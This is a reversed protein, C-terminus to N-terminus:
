IFVPTHTHTHTHIHTHTHTHLACQTHTHTNPITTTCNIYESFHLKFYILYSITLYYDLSLLLIAVDM